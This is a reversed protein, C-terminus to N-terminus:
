SNPQFISEYSINNTSLLLKVGFVKETPKPYNKCTQFNKKVYNEYILAYEQTSV